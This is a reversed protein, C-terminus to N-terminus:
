APDFARLGVGVAALTRAVGSADVVVVVPAQLWKAIEAASGEEGDPSAGDYLGMVGEILAVDAGATARAFTAMVAARGMMWGDLNHSVSGTARAHYTPDLYD